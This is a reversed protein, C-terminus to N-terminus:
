VSKEKEQRRDSILGAVCFSLAGLLLGDRSTFPFSNTNSDDPLITDPLADTDAVVLVMSDLVQKVTDKVPTVPVLLDKIIITAVGAKKNNVLKPIFEPKATSCSAPPVVLTDGVIILDPNTVHPNAQQFEEVTTDFQKALLSLRDGRKVIIINDIAINEDKSITVSDGPYILDPNVRLQPNIKLIEEVAKGYNRAIASLCDGRQVVHIVDANATIAALILAAIIMFSFKKM